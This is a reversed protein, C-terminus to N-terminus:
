CYSSLFPQDEGVALVRFAFAHPRSPKGLGEKFVLVRIVEIFNVFGFYIDRSSTERSRSRRTFTAVQLGTYYYVSDFLPQM